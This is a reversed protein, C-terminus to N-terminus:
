TIRSITCFDNCYDTLGDPVCQLSLLARYIQGTLVLASARDSWSSRDSNLCQTTIVDLAEFDNPSRRFVVKPKPLDNCREYFVVIFDSCRISSASACVKLIVCYPFSPYSATRSADLGDPSFDLRLSNRMQGPPQRERREWPSRPQLSDEVASSPCSVPGCPPYDWRCLMRAWCHSAM